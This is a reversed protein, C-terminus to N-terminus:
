EFASVVTRGGIWINHFDATATQFEVLNIRPQRLNLFQPSRHQQAIYFPYQNRVNQPFMTGEDVLTVTWSADEEHVGQSQFVVGVPEEFHQSDIVRSSV